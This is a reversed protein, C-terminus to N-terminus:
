SGAQDNKVKKLVERLACEKAYADEAGFPDGAYICEKCLDFYEKIMKELVEIFVRKETENLM